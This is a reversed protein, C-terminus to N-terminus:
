KQFYSRLSKIFPALPKEKILKIVFLKKYGNNAYNKLHANIGTSFSDKTDYKNEASDCGDVATASKSDTYIDHIFYRQAHSKRIGIAHSTKENDNQVILLGYFSKKPNAWEDGVNNFELNAIANNWAKSPRQSDIEFSAGRQETFHQTTHLWTPEFYTNKRPVWREKIDADLACLQSAKPKLGVCTKTRLYDVQIAVCMRSFDPCAIRRNM